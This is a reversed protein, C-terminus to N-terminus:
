NSGREPWRLNWNRYADHLAQNAEAATAGSVEIDCGNEDYWRFADADQRLELNLDNGDETTIVAATSNMHEM